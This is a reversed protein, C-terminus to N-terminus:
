YKDFRVLTDKYVDLLVNNYGEIHVIYQNDVEAFDTNLANFLGKIVLKM